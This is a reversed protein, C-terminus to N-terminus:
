LFLWGGLEVAWAGSSEGKYQHPEERKVVLVYLSGWFPRQGWSWEWKSSDGALVQTRGARVADGGM